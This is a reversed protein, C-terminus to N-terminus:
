LDLASMKVPPSRWLTGEELSGLDPRVPHQRRRLVHVERKAPRAAPNLSTQNTLSFKLSQLLQSNQYIQLRSYKSTLCFWLCKAKSCYVLHQLRQSSLPMPTSTATEADLRRVSAGIIGSNQMEELFNMVTSVTQNLISHPYKCDCKGLRGGSRRTIM